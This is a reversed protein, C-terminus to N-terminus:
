FKTKTLQNLAITSLIPWLYPNAPNSKLDALLQDKKFPAQSDLGHVWEELQNYIQTIWFKQPVGFGKKENNWLIENPIVGDMSKRLYYKTWGANVKTNLPMKFAQNILVNSLHPVRSEISSAMSNRDAYRLLRPLCYRYFEDKQKSLVDKPAFLDKVVDNRVAELYEKKVYKSTESMKRTLAIASSNFYLHGLIAHTFSISLNKKLGVLEKTFSNIKFSKLYEFMVRQAMRPYGLYMEDGGQGDLMVKVGLSKARKMILYQAFMSLSSFPEGMNVIMHTLEAEMNDVEPTVPIWHAHSSNAVIKALKSEDDPFGPAIFTFARFPKSEEHLRNGIISAITSSDIGGSLSSGVPVDSRLQRSIGLHLNTSFSELSVPEIHDPELHYKFINFQQNTLNFEFAHGGKLQHVEDIMTGADHDSLGLVFFESLYTRNFRFGNKMFGKFAKPESAFVFSKKEKKYYFPKIGAVDRAGFLKRNKVDLIVFSFMGDFKSLMGRGWLKYAALIVETDSNTRWPYKDGIEEKLEIYNYIEGNFVISLENDFSFMPQHGNKSLDIISLRQHGLAINTNSQIGEFEQHRYNASQGGGDKWIAMGYDDPGRNAITDLMSKLQVHPPLSDNIAGHTVFGAIGCM